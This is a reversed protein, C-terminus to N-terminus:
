SVTLLTSTLSVAQMQQRIQLNLNVLVQKVATKVFVAIKQDLNNSFIENNMEDTILFVSIELSKWYQYCSHNFIHTTATLFDSQTKQIKSKRNNLFWSTQFKLSDFDVSKERWSISNESTLYSSSSFCQSLSSNIYHEIIFQLLDHYQSIIIHVFHHKSKSFVTLQYVLSVTNKNLSSLVETNM